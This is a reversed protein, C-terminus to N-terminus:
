RRTKRPRDKALPLVLTFTSGVGPKSELRIEGRMSKVINRVMALGIGTGKIGARKAAEGRAFNRFVARQEIAPIGIGRDRVSILVRLKEVKGDVWVTRCDPSYKMANQILNRLARCFTEEDAKIPAPASSLELELQFGDVKIQESLDFVTKRVLGLADYTEMPGLTAGSKIRVFDLLDEVLQTLRRTETDLYVYGEQRRSEPIRGQALLETISRLATLPSRFEHSVAAVFDSQLQSVRIERRVGRYIAYVSALIVLLMLTSGVLLLRRWGPVDGADLRRSSFELRGPLGADALSRSATLGAGSPSGQPIMKWRIDASDPSLQLAADLWAPSAIMANLRDASAEWLLLSSDALVERGSAAGLRASQWREYLRSVMESFALASQPPSSAPLGWQELESWRLEFAGRTLPWRGELLGEKIGEAVARSERNRGLDKLLKCRATMSLLAYPVGSPGAGSEAELRKYTNLAAEGQGTKEEIRAIRLLAEPQLGPQKALPELEAMARVYQLRLELDDAVDFETSSQVPLEPVLPNFLLPIQPYLQIRTASFVLYTVGNPFRPQLNPAPPLANLEHLALDWDELRHSLQAVAFDAIEGLRDRSRQTELVRDQRALRLSLVFQWGAVCVVGALLAILWTRGSFRRSFWAYV